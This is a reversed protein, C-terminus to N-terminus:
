FHKFFISMPANATVAQVAFPNQLFEGVLALANFMMRKHTWEDPRRTAAGAATSTILKNYMDIAARIKDANHHTNIHDQLVTYTRNPIQYQPKRFCTNISPIHALLQSGHCNHALKDLGLDTSLTEGTHVEIDNVFRAATFEVTSLRWLKPRGGHLRFGVYM